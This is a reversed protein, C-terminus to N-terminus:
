KTTTAYGANGTHESRPEVITVNTAAPMPVRGYDDDKDLLNYRGVRHNLRAWNRGYEGTPHTTVRLIRVRRYSGFMHVNPLHTDYANGSMFSETELCRDENLPLARAPTWHERIM